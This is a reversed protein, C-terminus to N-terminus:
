YDELHYWEPNELWIDPRNLLKIINELVIFHKKEEAAIRLFVEKQSADVQGAKEIYFDRTKQELAQAKRYLEVQSVDVDFQKKARMEAFINKVDAFITTDAAHVTDNQKMKEFLKYHKVEADALMTLITKVGSNGTKAALERYFDEGDKEMQMAYEYIDMQWRGHHV